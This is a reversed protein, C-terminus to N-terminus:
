LWNINSKVELQNSDYGLEGQLVQRLRHKQHANDLEVWLLDQYSSDLNELIERSSVNSITYKFLMEILDEKEVVNDGNLISDCMRSIDNIKTGM